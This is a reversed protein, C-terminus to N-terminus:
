PLSDEGEVIEARPHDPAMFYELLAVALAHPCSWHLFHGQGAFRVLRTNRLMASLREGHTIPIVHDREGWFLRLAPLAALERARDLFHRKQGRCNIVDHVTRAFARASGPLGNVYRLYERETAPLGTGHLETMLFTTTGMLPQGLSEVGPLSALRLAMGVDRGLGGPAVLALKHISSARYLLLWMALGGGYSHAVVDVSSSGIRDLWSALLQAQWDITYSADPRESLGCGPLDVALVRHHAALRDAVRSWTRETDQLGHVIIVPPGQGRETWHLRIGAVEDSHSTV